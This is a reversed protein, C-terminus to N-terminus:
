WGKRTKWREYPISPDNLPIRYEDPNERNYVQDPINLLWCDEEGLCEFGHVVFPPVKLVM